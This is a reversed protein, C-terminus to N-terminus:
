LEVQNKNQPQKLIWERLRVEDTSWRRCNDESGTGGQFSLTGGYRVPIQDEAIKELLGKFTEERNYVKTKALTEKSFLRMKVLAKWGAAIWSPTNVIIVGCNRDAYNEQMKSSATKMFKMADGKLENFSCGEADFVSLMQAGEEPQLVEFAFITSCEYHDLLSAVTVGREQLKLMDIRGMEEYYVMEGKRTRGAIYMPYYEKMVNFHLNQKTLLPHKLIPLRTQESLKDQTGLSPVQTWKNLIPVRLQYKNQGEVQRQYVADAVLPLSILSMGAKLIRSSSISM